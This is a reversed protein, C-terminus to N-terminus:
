ANRISKRKALAFRVRIPRDSKASRWVNTLHAHAGDRRPRAIRKLRDLHTLGHAGHRPRPPVFLLSGAVVCHVMRRRQGRRRRLACATTAGAPVPRRAVQGRAGHACIGGACGPRCRRVRRARRRRGRIARPRDGTGAVRAVRRWGRARRARRGDGRACGCRTRALRRACRRRWHGRPRCVASARLRGHARGAGRGRADHDRCGGQTSAGHAILGGDCGRERGAAPADVDFVDTGHVQELWIPDAPLRQRLRARNARVAQASDGCHAGLNWGGPAGGALGWLGESVGGERTTTFAHVRGAGAWAPAILPVHDSGTM